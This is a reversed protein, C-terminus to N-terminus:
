GNKKGWIAFDVIIATNKKNDLFDILKNIDKDAENTTILNNDVLEPVLNRYVDIYIKKYEQINKETNDNLNFSLLEEYKIEIGNNSLYYRIKRGIASDGCRNKSNNYKTLADMFKTKYLPFQPFWINAYVDKDVLCIVGNDNLINCMVIIANQPNFIHKLAFRSFVLDYKNKFDCSLIDDNIFEIQKDNERALKKSYKLLDKSIDFYTVEADPFLEKLL